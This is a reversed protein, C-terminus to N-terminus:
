HGLHNASRYEHGITGQAPITEDAVLLTKVSAFDFCCIARKVEVPLNATRGLSMKLVDQFVVKDQITWNSNVM